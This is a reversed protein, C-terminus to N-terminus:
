DGIEEFHNGDILTMDGTGDALSINGLQVKVLRIVTYASMFRDTTTGNTTIIALKRVGDIETHPIEFKFPMKTTSNIIWIIEEPETAHDYNWILRVTTDQASCADGAFLEIFVQDDGTPTYVEAVDTSAPVLSSCKLTHRAM